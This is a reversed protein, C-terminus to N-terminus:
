VFKRRIVSVVYSFRLWIVYVDVKGDVFCEFYSVYFCFIDVVDVSVGCGCWGVIYCFEM